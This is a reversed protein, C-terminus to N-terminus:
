LGLKNSFICSIVNSFALNQVFIIKQQFVTSLNDPDPVPAPVLVKGFDSGYGFGCCIM